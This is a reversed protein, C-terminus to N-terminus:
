KRLVEKMKTMKGKQQAITKILRDVNHANAFAFAIGMSAIQKPNEEVNGVVTNETVTTVSPQTGVNLTKEIRWKISKTKPDFSYRGFM